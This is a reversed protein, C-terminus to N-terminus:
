MRIYPREKTRGCAFLRHCDDVHEDGYAGLHMNSHPFRSPARGVALGDCDRCSCPIFM